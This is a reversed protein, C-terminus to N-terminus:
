VISIRNLNLLTINPQHRTVLAFEKEAEYPNMYEHMRRLLRDEANRHHLFQGMVPIADSWSSEVGQQMSQFAATEQLRDEFIDSSM